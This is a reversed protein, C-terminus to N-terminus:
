RECAPCSDSGEEILALNCYACKELKNRKVVCNMCMNHGSYKKNTKCIICLDASPDHM